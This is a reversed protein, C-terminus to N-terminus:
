VSSVEGELHTDVESPSDRQAFRAGHLPPGRHGGEPLKGGLFGEVEEIFRVTGREITRTLGDPDDFSPRETLTCELIADVGKGAASMRYKRWGSEEFLRRYESQVQRNQATLWVEFRVTEHILVVAIKLKRATLSKPFLPFYTMDMYGQYVNGAGYEPYSKGFHNKLSAMYEMLGRYAAPVLGKEMQRRYEDVAKQLTTM